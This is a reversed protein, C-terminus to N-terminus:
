LPITVDHLGSLNRTTYKILKDKSEQDLCLAFISDGGGAGMLGATFAGNNKIKKILNTLEEPEIEADALKGLQKRYDWSKELNKKIEALDKREFSDKLNLNVLNYKKMFDYYRKPEKKKFDFVKQVLEKTSASKGTFIIVPMLSSPWEFNNIQPVKTKEVYERFDGPEFKECVFFHSGYVAAAVDFGSGSGQAMYHAYRSVKYVVDKINIDHFKLIASVSSVVSTASSGLGSKIGSPSMEIDNKTILHFKKVPIKKYKLYKFSYEIANELFIIRDSEIDTIVQNNEYSFYLNIGFQPVSIEYRDSKEITATTGKNVNVVLGTNGPELISYAGFVLIKGYAKKTIM